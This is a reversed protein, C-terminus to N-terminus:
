PDETAMQYISWWHFNQVLPLREEISLSKKNTKKKQKTIGWRKTFNHLWKDSAKFKKEPDKGSANVTFLM